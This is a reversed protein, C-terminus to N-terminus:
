DLKRLETKLEEISVERFDVEGVSEGTELSKIGLFIKSDRFRISVFWAAVGAIINSFIFKLGNNGAAMISRRDKFILQANSGEESDVDSVMTIKPAPSNSFADCNIWGMQTINGVYYGIESNTGKGKKLKTETSRLSIAELSDRLQEYTEVGYKNKMDEWSEFSGNIPDWVKRGDSRRCAKVERNYERIDKRTSSKLNWQMAFDKKEFTRCWFDCVSGCGILLPWYFRRPNMRLPRGPALQWDMNGHPDRAGNFFQMDSRLNNKEKVFLTLAKNNKLSLPNGNGDFAEIQFMGATELIRDGSTTSLNELLMDSTKYIEKVKLTIESANFSNAPIMVITGQKLTVFTDRRNNIEHVQKELELKAYLDVINSKTATTQPTPGIPAPDWEIQVRRNKARGQDSSNDAAPSKEGKYDIKIKGAEIGKSVLYDRVANVRRNSLAMNYEDSGKSDTFGTLRIELVNRFRTEILEDLDKKAEETLVSKDFDFYVKHQNAPKILAPAGQVLTSTFILLLSILIPKM